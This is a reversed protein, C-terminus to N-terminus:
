LQYRMDTMMDNEMQATFVQLMHLVINRLQNMPFYCRLGSYMPFYHLRFDYDVNMPFIVGFVVTKSIRIGNTSIPLESKM